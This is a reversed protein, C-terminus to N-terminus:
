PMLRSFLDKFRKITKGMTEKGKNVFSRKEGESESEAWLILGVANFYRPDSIKDIIVDMNRIEGVAVPLRLKNKAVETIGPLKAGGGSLIVGAPLMGSRDIKKLEQDVMDFIEEVRAEIIEAIYKRSVERIDDNVEEEKVLDTIDVKDKSSFLSSDSNGHEIKIREALNIPCRLGIAMDATIHESGVPLIATHILKEEEFVAMSTTSAGIDVVAMGLEKQKRSAIVEAVALPSLVLNDIDVDTRYIAKTLNKIQSSAGQVILVEVELRVGNMGIPDKIDKQNDVTYNIPIVHLIEYNVPVSLTGAADIARDVDDQSIEGNSKSVAIVGKSIECKIYPDNISVWVSDIPFGTLREGKELLASITSTVDDISKVVGKSIGETPLSTAGIIKIKGGDDQSSKQAIVLRSESSGVDLAALIDEKM